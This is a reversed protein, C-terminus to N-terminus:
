RTATTTARLSARRIRARRLTSRRPNRRRRRTRPHSRCCCHSFSTLFSTSFGLIPCSDSFRMRPRVSDSDDESKYESGSDSEVKGKKATKKKQKPKPKPKTAPKTASKAWNPIKTHVIVEIGFEQFYKCVHKMLEMRRNVSKGLMDPYNSTMQKTDPKPLVLDWTITAGPNGAEHSMWVADVRGMLKKLRQRTNSILVSVFDGLGEDFENEKDLVHAVIFESPGKPLEEDDILVTWRYSGRHSEM